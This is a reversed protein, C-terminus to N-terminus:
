DLFDIDETVVNYALALRSIIGEGLEYFEDEKLTSDKLAWFLKVLEPSEKIEAARTKVQAALKGSLEKLTYEVGRITATVSGDSNVKTFEKVKSKLNTVEM